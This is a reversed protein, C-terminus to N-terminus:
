MLFKVELILDWIFLSLVFVFKFDFIFDYLESLKFYWLSFYTLKM